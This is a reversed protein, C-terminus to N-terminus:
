RTVWRCVSCVCQMNLKRKLCNMSKRQMPFM